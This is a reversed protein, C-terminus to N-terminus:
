SVGSLGGQFSRGKRWSSAEREVWKFPRVGLLIWLVPPPDEVGCFDWVQRHDVCVTVTICLSGADIPSFVGVERSAGVDGGCGDV